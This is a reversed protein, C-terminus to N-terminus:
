ASPNEPSHQCSDRGEHSTNLCLNTYKSRTKLALTWCPTIFNRSPLFASSVPRHATVIWMIESSHLCHIRLNILNLGDHSLKQDRGGLKAADFRNVYAKRIGSAARLSASGFTEACSDQRIKKRSVRGASRHGNSMQQSPRRLKKSPTVTM